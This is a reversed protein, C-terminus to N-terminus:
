KFARLMVISGIALVIVIGGIIIYTQQKSKAKAADAGVKAEEISKENAIRALELEQQSQLFMPNSLQDASAFVQKQINEQQMAESIASEYEKSVDSIEGSIANIQLRLQNENETARNIEPIIANAQDRKKKAKDWYIHRDSKWERCQRAKAINIRGQCTDKWKKDNDDGIRQDNAASNLLDARQKELAVKQAIVMEIEAQKNGLDENLNTLRPEYIAELQMLVNNEMQSQLTQVAM